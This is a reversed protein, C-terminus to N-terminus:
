LRPQGRDAHESTLVTKMEPETRVFSGPEAYWRSGPKTHGARKPRTRAASGPAVRGLCHCGEAIGQWVQVLAFAGTPASPGQM